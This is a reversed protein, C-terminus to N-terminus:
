LVGAALWGTEIQMQATVLVFANRCDTKNFQALLM